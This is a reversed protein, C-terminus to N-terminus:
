PGPCCPRDLDDPLGRVHSARGTHPATNLQGFAEPPQAPDPEVTLVGYSPYTTGLSHTVARRGEEYEIVEAAVIDRGTATRQLFVQIEGLGRPSGPFTVAAEVEEMLQTASAPAAMFSWVVAASRPLDVTAVQTVQAPHATVRAIKM